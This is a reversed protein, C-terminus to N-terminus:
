KTECREKARTNYLFASYKLDKGRQAVKPKGIEMFVERDIQYAVITEEVIEVQTLPSFTVRTVYIELFYTSPQLFRPLCHM